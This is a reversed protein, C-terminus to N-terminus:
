NLCIKNCLRDIALVLNTYKRQGIFSLNLSASEYVKNNNTKQLKLEKRLGFRGVSLKYNTFEDRNVRYEKMNKKYGFLDLFSKLSRPNPKYTKIIIENNQAYFEIYTPQLKEIIFMLITMFFNLAFLSYFIDKPLNITQIGILKTVTITLIFILLVLIFSIKFLQYIRFETKNNIM